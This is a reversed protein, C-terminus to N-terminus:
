YYILTLELAYGLVRGKQLPKFLFIWLHIGDIGTRSLRTALYSM